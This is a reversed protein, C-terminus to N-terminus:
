SIFCDIRAPICFEHYSTPDSMLHHNRHSDRDSQYGKRSHAYYARLENWKGEKTRGSAEDFDGPNRLGARDCAFLLLYPFFRSGVARWRLHIVWFWDDAVVVYSLLILYEHETQIMFSCITKAVAIMTIM